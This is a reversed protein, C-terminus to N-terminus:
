TTGRGCIWQSSAKGLYTQRKLECRQNRRGLTNVTPM